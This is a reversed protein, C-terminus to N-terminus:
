MGSAFDGFEHKWCHTLRAPLLSTESVSINGSTFDSSKNKSSQIVRLPLITPNMLVPKAGSDFIESHKKCIYKIRHLLLSPENVCNNGCQVTRSTFDTVQTEMM